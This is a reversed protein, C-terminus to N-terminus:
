KQIEQGLFGNIPERYRYVRNEEASIIALVENVAQDLDDNIVLYDYSPIYKLEDRAIGLRKEIEPMSDTNRKILRDKLVEMSPPIIFIKVYPVNSSSIQAAGQVDIDMIVHRQKELRSQIYSISTAYWNDFVKAQELFDGATSRLFFDSESVFHYHVATQEAGRPARTTYSVSYDIVDSRKLVETLITSKGGGSPASLIILFSKNKEIM